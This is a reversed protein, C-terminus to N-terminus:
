KREKLKSNSGPVADSRSLCQKGLSATFISCARCFLFGTVNSALEERGDREEISERRGEYNSRDRRSEFM